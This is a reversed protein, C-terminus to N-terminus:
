WKEKGVPEVPNKLKTKFSEKSYDKFLYEITGKRPIKPKPVTTKTKLM